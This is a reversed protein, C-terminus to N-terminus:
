TATMEKAVTGEEGHLRATTAILPNVREKLEHFRQIRKPDGTLTLMGDHLNVMIFTAFLRLIDLEKEKPVRDPYGFTVTGVGNCMLCDHRPKDNAPLAEDADVEILDIVPKASGTIKFSAPIPKPVPATITVTSKHPKSEPQTVKAKVKQETHVVRHKTDIDWKEGGKSDAANAYNALYRADAQTMEPNIRRDEIAKAFLPDPVKQLEYLSRWSAPLSSFNAHNRLRQDSAIRMLMEATRPGFPLDSEVMKQFKGALEDKAKILLDGCEFISVLTKRWAATIRAAYDPSPSEGSGNLRVREVMPNEQLNNVM